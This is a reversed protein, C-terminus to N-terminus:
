FGVSPDPASLFGAYNVTFLSPDDYFDWIAAQVDSELTSGWYNETADVEGEDYGGLYVVAYGTNNVLSNYHMVKRTPYGGVTIGDVNAEIINYEMTTYSLQTEIATQNGMLVNHSITAGDPKIGVTNNAITSESITLTSASGGELGTSNGDFLSDEVSVSGWSVYLGTTNDVFLSDGVTASVPSYADIGVGCDSFM